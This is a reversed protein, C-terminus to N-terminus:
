GKEVPRTWINVAPSSAELQWGEGKPQQDAPMVMRAVSTPARPYWWAGSPGCLSTRRMVDALAGHDGTVYDVAGEHICLSLRPSLANPQVFKCAICPRNNTPM